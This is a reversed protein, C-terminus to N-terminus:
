GGMGRQFVTIYYIYVWYLVYGILMLTLFAMAGIPKFNEHDFQDTHVVESDEKKM